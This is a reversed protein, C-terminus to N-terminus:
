PIHPGQDNSAIRHPHPGAARRQDFVARALADLPELNDPVCMIVRRLKRPADCPIRRAVRDGIEAAMILTFIIAIIFIAHTATRPQGITDAGHAFIGVAPIVLDAAIVLETEPRALQLQDPQPTEAM